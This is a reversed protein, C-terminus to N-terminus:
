LVIENFVINSVMGDEQNLYGSVGVSEEEIVFNVSSAIDNYAFTVMLVEYLSSDILNDDILYDKTLNVSVSVEDCSYSNKELDKIQEIKTLGTLIAIDNDIANMVTLTDNGEKIVKRTVPVYYSNNGIVKEYLVVVNDSGQFDQTMDHYKNIGIDKNLVKPLTLGNLPMKELKVGEISITLGKVEEFDMVSWTLSEIIKEELENAYILFEKSFDINLIGNELEIKNIKVDEALISTFGEVKLDRLDSIVTYIEDVLYEKNSVEVSLPILYKNEDLLYVKRYNKESMDVVFEHEFGNNQNRSIMFVSFISGVIVLPLCLMLLHKKKIKKM